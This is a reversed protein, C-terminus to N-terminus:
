GCTGSPGGTGMERDTGFVRGAEGPKDRQSSAVSVGGACEHNITLAQVAEVQRTSSVTGVSITFAVKAM